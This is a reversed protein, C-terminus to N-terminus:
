GYIVEGFIAQQMVVDGYICDFDGNILCEMVTPHDRLEQLARELDAITITATIVGNEFWDSESDEPDAIAVWLTCPKDWDGGEYDYTYWWPLSEWASGCIDLWTEEDDLILQVM